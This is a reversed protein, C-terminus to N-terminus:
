RHGGAGGMHGGGGGMHGGGMPAGGYHMGGMPAGGYHGGGVPGGGYHMGGGHPAAHPGEHFVHEHEEIHGHPVFVPGGGFAYPYPYYYSPGWDYAYGGYNGGYYLYDSCGAAMLAGVAVTAILARAARWRPTM